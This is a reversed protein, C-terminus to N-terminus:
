VDRFLNFTSLQLFTTWHNWSVHQEKVTTELFTISSYKPLQIRPFMAGSKVVFRYIEIKKKRKKKLVSKRKQILM